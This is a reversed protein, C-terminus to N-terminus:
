KKSAKILSTGFIMDYISSNFSKTFNVLARLTPKFSILFSAWVFSQIFPMVIMDRLLVKTVVKINPNQLNQKKTEKALSNYFVNAFRTDPIPFTPVKKVPMMIATATTSTIEILKVVSRKLIFTEM